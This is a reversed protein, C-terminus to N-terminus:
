NSTKLLFEARQASLSLSIAIERKAAEWFCVEMDKDIDGNLECFEDLYTLMEMVTGWALNLYDIGHLEFDCAKPIDTIM